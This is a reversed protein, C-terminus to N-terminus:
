NSDTLTKGSAQTAKTMYRKLKSYTDELSLGHIEAIAQYSLGAQRLQMLYGMDIPKKSTKVIKKKVSKKKVPKEPKKVVPERFFKLGMRKARSKVAWTTRNLALATEDVSANNSVYQKLLNNEETTWPCRNLIIFNASNKIKVGLKYSRIYISSLGHNPMMDMIEKATCTPGYIRIIDDEKATWKNKRRIPLIELEASPPWFRREKLAEVLITRLFKSITVAETKAAADLAVKIPIAVRTGIFLTSQMKLETEM